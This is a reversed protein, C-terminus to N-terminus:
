GMEQNPCTEFYFVLGAETRNYSWDLPHKVIM